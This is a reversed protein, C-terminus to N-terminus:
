PTPEELAARAIYPTTAITYGRSELADVLRDVDEGFDCDFKADHLAAALAIRAHREPGSEGAIFAQSGPPMPGGRAVDAAPCPPNDSDNTGCNGACGDSHSLGATLNIIALVANRALLALEGANQTTNSWPLDDVAQSIRRREAKVAAEYGAIYHDACDPKTTGRHACDPCCKRQDLRNCPDIGIGCSSCPQAGMPVQGDNDGNTAMVIYGVLTTWKEADHIVLTNNPRWTSDGVVDNLAERLNRSM